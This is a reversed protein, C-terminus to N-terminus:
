HFLRFSSRSKPAFLWWRVQNPSYHHKTLKIVTYIAHAVSFAHSWNHYPVSRYNKRVTLVFRKLCEQDFRYCLFFSTNSMQLSLFFNGIQMWKIWVLWISFCTFFMFHNWIMQLVGLRFNLHNLTPYLVQFPSHISDNMSKTAVHPMTLCFRWHLKVSRNPDVFVTTCHLM